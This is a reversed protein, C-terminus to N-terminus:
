PARRPHARRITRRCARGARAASRRRARDGARARVPRRRRRERAPVVRDLEAVADVPQGLREDERARLDGDHGDHGIEVDEGDASAQEDEREPEHEDAAARDQRRAPARMAARPRPGSWPAGCGHFAEQEGGRECEGQEARERADCEFARGGRAGGVGGGLVGRRQEGVVVDPERRGRPAPPLGVKRQEPAVGAVVRPTIRWCTRQALAAPIM